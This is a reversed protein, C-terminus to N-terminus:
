RSPPPRSDAQRQRRRYRAMVEKGYDHEALRINHTRCMLRVNEVSRDGGRAWPVVHHYELRDRTGCRRGQDDLYRCRGGDREDVARRVAAPIDRSSSPSTDTESLAKRPAKTRGFRRAELRELKETVAEELIRALDGDPVSTRMLSKLRDLKECFASSATFQVKYRFPALPEVVASRVPALPGVTGARDPGLELTTRVLPGVAQPVPPEVHIRHDPLKRISPPVDPRPTLEAVLEEIQRKSKHAARELLAERNARTLRSALKAIGSLHLRGDSLMTLLMPHERAARAVAIRLYAEHDSLHLIDTCYAFMSDCAEPAYLRRDDVEGIHAVLESEVGRSEGLLESLGRLLDNDSLSRVSRIRADRSGFPEVRALGSAISNSTPEDNV